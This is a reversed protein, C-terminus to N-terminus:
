RVMLAANRRLYPSHHLGMRLYHRHNNWRLNLKVASGVYMRGSAVHEIKYIGSGTM